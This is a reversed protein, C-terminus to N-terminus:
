GATGKRVAYATRPVCTDSPTPKPALPFLLLFLGAAHPHPVYGDFRTNTTILAREGVFMLPVCLELAAACVDVALPPLVLVREHSLPKPVSCLSSAVLLVHGFCSPPPAHCCIPTPEERTGAWHPSGCSHGHSALKGATHAYFEFWVTALM